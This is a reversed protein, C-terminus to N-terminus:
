PVLEPHEHINGVVTPEGSLSHGSIFDHLSCYPGITSQIFMGDKFSVVVPVCDPIQVVDGEYIETGNKDKLGTYQEVVEINQGTTQWHLCNGPEEDYLMQPPSLEKGYKNTIGKHWARFKIERSM